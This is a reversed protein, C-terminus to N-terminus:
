PVPEDETEWSGESYGNAADGGNLIYSDGVPYTAIADTDSPAFTFDARWSLKETSRKWSGGQMSSLIFAKGIPASAVGGPAEFGYTIDADTVTLFNCPRSSELTFYEDINDDTLVTTGGKVSKFRIFDFHYPGAAGERWVVLTTVMDGVNLGLAALVNDATREQDGLAINANCHVSGGNNVNMQATFKGSPLSKLSGESVQYDGPLLKADGYNCYAFRPTAAGINARLLKNNVSQFRSMNQLGYTYGEFSHGVIAKMAAYAASSTTLVMRNRMQALTRPNKVQEAKEKTVQHGNFVTFTFNKTSGRRKGFFSNSKAM